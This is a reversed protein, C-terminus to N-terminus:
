SQWVVLGKRHTWVVFERRRERDTERERERERERRMNGRRSALFENSMDGRGEGNGREALCWRPQEERACAHEEKM